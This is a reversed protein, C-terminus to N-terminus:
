SQLTEVQAPELKSLGKLIEYYHLTLLVVAAEWLSEDVAEGKLVQYEALDHCKCADALDKALQKNDRVGLVNFLSGTEAVFAAYSKDHHVRWQEGEHVGAAKADETLGIAKELQNSYESLSTLSSAKPSVKPFSVTKGVMTELVVQYRLGLIHKILAWASSSDLKRDDLYEAEDHVRAALSLLHASLQAAPKSIGWVLGETESKISEFQAYYGLYGEEPINNLGDKRHAEFILQAQGHSKWSGVDTNAIVSAKAGLDSTAIGSLRTLADSPPTWDIIKDYRTIM